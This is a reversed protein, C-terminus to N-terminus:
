YRPVSPDVETSWREIGGAMSQSAEIGQGRLWSVVNASRIGHHCFVILPGTEALEELRDLHRPVTDMPILEAGEIRTIQHEDPRRVDILHITEGREVRQKVDQPTIEFSLSDAV